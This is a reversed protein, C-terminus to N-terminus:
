LLEMIETLAHITHSHSYADSEGFKDIWIASLGASLAGAIDNPYYDGVYVAQEPRVDMAYCTMLFIEPEPKEIKVSESITVAEFRGEIGLVGIKEKQLQTHGNTIIGLNYKPALYDLVQEMGPIPVSFSAFRRYWEKTQVEPEGSIGWKRNLERFFDPRFVYGRNDLVRMYEVMDEVPQPFNGDSFWQDLLARSCRRVAEDRDMLTDDLDFIVAQLDKM